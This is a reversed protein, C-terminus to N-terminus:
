PSLCHDSIFNGKRCTRVKINSYEEMFMLDLTNDSKHTSFLIHQRFGLAVMIDKFNAVDDDNPNNILLKFDGANVKNPDLVVSDTLWETFEGLIDLNSASPPRYVRVITLTTHDIQRKNPSSSLTFNM